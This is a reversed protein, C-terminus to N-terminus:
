RRWSPVSSCSRETMARSNASSNRVARSSRFFFARGSSGGPLRHGSKLTNNVTAVSHEFKNQPKNMIYEFTYRIRYTYPRDSATVSQSVNTENSCKRGREKIRKICSLGGGCPPPSKRKGLGRGRPSVGPHGRKGRRPLEGGPPGRLPDPSQARLRTRRAVASPPEQRAYSNPRFGLLWYLM